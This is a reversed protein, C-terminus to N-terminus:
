NSRPWFAFDAAKKEGGAKRSGKGRTRETLSKETNTFMESVSIIDASNIKMLFICVLTVLNEMQILIVKLKYLLIFNDKNIKIIEKLCKASLTNNYQTNCIYSFLNWKGNMLKWHQKNYWSQQPRLRNECETTIKTLNMFVSLMFLFQSCSPFLFIFVIGCINSFSNTLLHSKFVLLWSDHSTTM